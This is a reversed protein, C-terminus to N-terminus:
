LLLCSFQFISHKPALNFDNWFFSCQELSTLPVHGFWLFLTLARHSPTVHSVRAQHGCTHCFPFSVLLADSWYLAVTAEETLRWTCSPPCTSLRCLRVSLGWLPQVTLRFGATVKSQRGYRSQFSSWPISAGMVRRTSHCQPPEPEQHTDVPVTKM